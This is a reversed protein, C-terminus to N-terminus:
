VTHPTSQNILAAAEQGIKIAYNTGRDQPYIQAMTALYLGPYPTTIPLVREGYGVPTIPQTNPARSVITEVVDSPRFDPYITSLAALFKKAVEDDSEAFLSDTPALYRSLYVIHRGGYHEASVFNTHEIVAVFPFKLDAVTLWYVDSLARKLVLTLCINAQYQIAELKARYTPDIQPFLKPLVAPAATVLVADFQETQGNSRIAWAGTAQSLSEITQGLLIRGGKAKVAAAMATTLRDFGGGAFYGLAEQGNRRSSGRLKFKSWLWAASITEAAPGFKSILLPEWLVRYATPGVKNTIWDKATIADLDRWSFRLYSDAILFGMKVREFFPLPTFKLLDLPGKLSYTQGQYYIATKPKIWTITEGLGLRKAMDTLHTDSTFFHHYFRELTEDGIQLSRALGGAASEREYLTVQHGTALLDLAAALGAYGSGIIAVKKMKRM